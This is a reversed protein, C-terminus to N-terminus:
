RTAAAPCCAWGTAGACWRCLAMPQPLPPSRLGSLRLRTATWRGGTVEMRPFPLSPPTHSPWLDTDSYTRMTRGLIQSCHQAHKVRGQIALRWRELGRVQHWPLPTGGGSSGAPKSMVMARYVSIAAHAGYVHDCIARFLPKRMYELFVPDVELGAQAEGIKRYAQSPGKFGTTQGATSTALADYLAYDVGSGASSASPSGGSMPDIQMYLRDGYQVAGSMLDDLRANLAAIEAPSAADIVVFGDEWFSAWQAASLSM